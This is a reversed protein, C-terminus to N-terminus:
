SPSWFRARRAARVDPSGASFRIVGTRHTPADHRRAVAVGVVEAAPAVRVLVARAAGVKVPNTSGVAVQRIRTFDFPMGTPHSSRANGHPTGLSITLLIHAGRGIAGM